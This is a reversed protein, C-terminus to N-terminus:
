TSRGAQLVLRVLASQRNVGTKTFVNRLHTRVTHVSVGLRQAAEPVSHAEAILAAVVSEAKTLRFHQAFRRAEVGIDAAHRPVTWSRLRRVDDETDTREARASSAVM